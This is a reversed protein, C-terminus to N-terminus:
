NLRKKKRPQKAIAKKSRREEEDLHVKNLSDISIQVFDFLFTQCKMEAEDPNKQREENACHGSQAIEM